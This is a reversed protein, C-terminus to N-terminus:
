GKKVPNVRSNDLERCAQQIMQETIPIERGQADIVSGFAPVPQAPRQQTNSSQQLSM